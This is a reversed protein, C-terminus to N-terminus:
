EDEECRDEAQLEKHERWGDMSADPHESFYREQELTLQPPELRPENM